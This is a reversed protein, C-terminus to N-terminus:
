NYIKGNADRFKNIYEKFNEFVNLYIKRYDGMIEESKLFKEIKDLIKNGLSEYIKKLLDVILYYIFYKQAVSYFYNKSLQYILKIFGEKINNFEFTNKEKEIKIKTEFYKLSKEKLNNELYNNTLNQYFDYYSKIFNKIRYNQLIIKTKQSLEKKHYFSM